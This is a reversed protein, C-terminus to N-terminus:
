SRLKCDITNQNDINVLKLFVRAGHLGNAVKWRGGLTDNYIVLNNTPDKPDNAPAVPRYTMRPGDSWQIKILTGSRITAQKGANGNFSCLMDQARRLLTAVTKNGSRLTIEDDRVNVQGTIQSSKSSQYRFSTDSTWFGKYRSCSSLRLSNDCADITFANDGGDAYSVDVLRKSQDSSEWFGVIKDNRKVARCEFTKLEPHNRRYQASQDGILDAWAGDGTYNLYLWAKDQLFNMWPSSPSPRDPTFFRMSGGGETGNWIKSGIAIAHNITDGDRQTIYQVAWEHGCQLTVIQKQPQPLSQGQGCASILLCAVLVHTYRM